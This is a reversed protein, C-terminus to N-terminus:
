SDRTRPLVPINNRLNFMKCPMNGEKDLKVASAIWYFELSFIPNSVKRTFNQELQRVLNSTNTLYIKVVNRPTAM